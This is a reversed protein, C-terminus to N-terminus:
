RAARALLERRKSGTDQGYLRLHLQVQRCQLLYKPLLEGWTNHPADVVAAARLGGPFLEDPQSLGLCRVGCRIACRSRLKRDLVQMHCLFPVLPCFRLTCPIVRDALKSQGCCCWHPQTDVSAVRLDMPDNRNTGRRMSSHDIVWLQGRRGEYPVSTCVTTPMAMSVIVSVSRFRDAYDLGALIPRQITTSQWQRSVFVPSCCTSQTTIM